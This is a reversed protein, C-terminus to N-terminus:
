VVSFKIFAKVINVNQIDSRLAFSYRIAGTKVFSLPVSPAHLTRMTVNAIPASIIKDATERLKLLAENPVGKERHALLEEYTFTIPQM